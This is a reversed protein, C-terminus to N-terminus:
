TRTRTRNHSIEQYTRMQEILLTNEIYIYIYQFSAPQYKVELAIMM